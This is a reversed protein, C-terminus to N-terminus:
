YCNPILVFPLLWYICMCTFIFFITFKTYNKKKVGRLCFSWFKPVGPTCSMFNPWFIDLLCLTLIQFNSSSQAKLFVTIVFFSVTPPPWISGRGGNWIPNIKFKKYYQHLIQEYHLSTTKWRLRARGKM